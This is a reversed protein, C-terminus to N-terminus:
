MNLSKVVSRTLNPPLSNNNLPLKSQMSKKRTEKPEKEMTNSQSFMIHSKELNPMDELSMPTGVNDGMDVSGGSISGDILGDARPTVTATEPFQNNITPSGPNNVQNCLVEGQTVACAAGNETRVAQSTTTELGASQNSGGPAWTTPNGDVVVEDGEIEEDDQDSESESREWGELEDYANLEDEEVIRQYFARDFTFKKFEPFALYLDEEHTIKIPRDGANRQIRVAANSFWTDAILNNAKLLRAQYAINRMTPSLNDNIYIKTGHPFGMERGVDKLKSKASKSKIDELLNRRMRVITPQPQKKSFLRHVAEVDNPEIRLSSIRNLIKAVVERLEDQTVSMPISEIEINNKRNNQETSNVQRELKVLRKETERARKQLSKNEKMLNDIVVRRMQYVDKNIKSSHVSLAAKTETIDDQIKDFRQNILDELHTFRDSADM